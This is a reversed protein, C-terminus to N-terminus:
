PAPIPFHLVADKATQISGTKLIPPLGVRTNQCLKISKLRLSISPDIDNVQDQIVVSKLTKQAVDCLPLIRESQECLYLCIQAAILHNGQSARSHSCQLRPHLAKVSSRQLCELLPNLCVM